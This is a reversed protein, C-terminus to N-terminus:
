IQVKLTLFYQWGDKIASKGALFGCHMMASKGALFGCHMMVSKGALFGCHMLSPKIAPWDPLLLWQLLMYYFTSWVTITLYSYISVIFWCMYLFMIVLYILLSYSYLPFHFYPVKFLGTNSETHVMNLSNDLMLSTYGM